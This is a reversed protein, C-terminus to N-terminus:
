RRQAPPRLFHFQYGHEQEFRVQVVDLGVPNMFLLAGGSMVTSCIAQECAHPSMRMDKILFKNLVDVMIKAFVSAQESKWAMHAFPIRLHETIENKLTIEHHRGKTSISFQKDKVKPHVHHNRLAIMDSMKRYVIDQRNIHTGHKTYVLFDLKDPLQLREKKVWEDATLKVQTLLSNAVAELTFMAHTLTFWTYMLKLYDPVPDHAHESARLTAVMLNVATCYSLKMTPAPNPMHALSNEHDILAVLHIRYLRPIHENFM